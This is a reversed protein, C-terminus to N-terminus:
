AVPKAPPLYVQHAVDVPTGVADRRDLGNFASSPPHPLRYVTPFGILKRWSGSEDERRRELGEAECSSFVLRTQPDLTVSDLTTSYNPVSCANKLPRRKKSAPDAHLSM